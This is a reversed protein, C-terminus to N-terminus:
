DQDSQGNWARLGPSRNDWRSEAIVKVRQLVARSSEEYSPILNRVYAAGRRPFSIRHRIELRTGVTTDTLFYGVTPAFEGGGITRTISYEAPVEDIVVVATVQEKGGLTHIFVQIEGVGMPTGEARFARTISPEMLPASEAPKILDWVLRRPARIDTDVRGELTETQENAKSSARKGMWETDWVAVQRSSRWASCCILLSLSPARDAIFVGQCQPLADPELIIGAQRRAAYGVLEVYIVPCVEGAGM